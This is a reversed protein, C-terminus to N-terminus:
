RDRLYRYGAYLALAGGVGAAPLLFSPSLFPSAGPAPAKIPALLKPTTTKARLPSAATKRVSKEKAPKVLDLWEDLFKQHAATVHGVTGSSGGFQRITAAQMLLESTIARPHAGMSAMALRTAMANMLGTNFLYNGFDGSSDSFLQTYIDDDWWLPDPMLALANKAITAKSLRPHAVTDDLVSQWLSAPSPAGATGGASPPAGTFPVIGEEIGGNVQTFGQSLQGSLGQGSPNAWAYLVAPSIPWVSKAYTAADKVALLSAPPPAGSTDGNGGMTSMLQVAYPDGGPAKYTGQALSLMEAARKTTWPGRTRNMYLALYWGPPFGSETGGTVQFMYDQLLTWIHLDAQSPQSKIGEYVPPAGGSFLSTFLQVAVGAVAAIGGVPGGVAFGTAVGLADTIITKPLGASLNSAVTTGAKLLAQQAAPDGPTGFLTQVQNLLQQGQAIQAQVNGAAPTNLLSSEPLSGSPTPASPLSPASLTSGNM